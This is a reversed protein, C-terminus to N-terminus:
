VFLSFHLLSSAFDEEEGPAAAESFFVKQTLVLPLRREELYTFVTAFM